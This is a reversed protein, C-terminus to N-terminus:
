ISFNVPLSMLIIFFYLSQADKLMLAFAAFYAGIAWHPMNTGAAPINNLVPATGAFTETCFTSESETILGEACTNVMIGGWLPIYMKVSYTNERFFKM